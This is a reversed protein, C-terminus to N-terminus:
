NAAFTVAVAILFKHMTTMRHRGPQSAAGSLNSAAIPLFAFWLTRSALALSRQLPNQAVSTPILPRLSWAYEYLAALNTMPTATRANAPHSPKRRPRARALRCWCRICSRKRQRRRGPWLNVGSRQAIRVISEHRDEIPSRQIPPVAVQAVPPHLTALNIPSTVGFRRQQSASCAKQDPAAPRRCVKLQLRLEANRRLPFLPM